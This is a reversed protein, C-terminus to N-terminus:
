FGTHYVIYSRLYWMFDKSLFNRNRYGGFHTAKIDPYYIINYGNRKARRCIDVDEFYMFYKEDFGGLKEYVSSKFLLFSGAAWDVCTAQHIKNKDYECPHKKSFFAIAPTLIDPFKKISGEPKALALDKHLNITCINEDSVIANKMLHFISECSVVVDPNLILFYDDGKMGLEKKCYEFVINNNRGFGCSYQEDIIHIRNKDAFTYLQQTCKTNCKIIVEHDHSLLSLVNNEVIM